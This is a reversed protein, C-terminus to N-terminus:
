GGEREVRADRQIRDVIAVAQGRRLLNGHEVQEVFHARMRGAREDRRAIRRRDAHRHAFIQARAEAPAEHKVERWQRVFAFGGHQFVGGTLAAEHEGVVDGGVQERM